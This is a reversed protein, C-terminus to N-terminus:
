AEPLERRRIVDALESRSGVELKRFINSLHTSVTRPSIDLQRAITKNSKRAAVLRAIELERSSLGAAGPAAERTPPRAGLERIQERTKSLEREAGMRAFVAHVHRLERIAEDREGQDRLRAAFHRRLRAADPAVPIAELREAAARLREVGLAIDGSLWVVFADAADAWAIGLPHGLREADRRLRAGMAQASAIDGISLYAETIIPLLRHIAWVTYGTRDAVALGRLGLRIAEDFEGAAVHYAARGAHAPVVTHVDVPGEDDGAGSIEWAEDAYVRGRELDGRGFYILSTWVLLRALIGRQNLARARALEREALALAAEWEGTSSMFEVAVEGLRLRHLPSRLEEAIAGGAAIHRRMGAADGTFGSLMALGWHITCSLGRDNLAIAIDLARQGHERARDPPGTWTHLLLLALNVRARLEGESLDDALRAACLLEEKADSARGLELLCEALALRVRAELGPASARRAIEAGRELHALAALHRGSWYHALGLRREAAAAGTADGARDAADRSREWLAIAPEFDGVRQLARALDGLLRRDVAGEARSAEAQRVAAGLYEAAERNAYKALANRGAIALYQVAKSALADDLARAYHFALRDAHELATTGYHTELATAVRGHLLRARALGVGAYITERLIPHSFDYVVARGDLREEVVRERRLEDVAAVLAAQDLEAVAGLEEHRVSTGIVALLNATSRANDSLEGLRAAVAARVSRPLELTEVEWGMWIGDREYLQGSEVLSKLTEEIFFPNGRTWGFLRAAFEREAGSGSGFVQEILETTGTLTLPRVEHIRAAGLSQLSQETQDLLKNEWQRDENYACVLAVRAGSLNRAIFHLLELSSADAWQLDDLVLLLPARTSLQALFQSFNWLVRIKLEAPDDGPRAGPAATTRFAPFIYGLEEEGGRSLTAVTDSGLERLLPVFADAFPAYPVGTEVPHARGVAITWEQRAAEDVWARLLRTKGVGSPGRLLLVAGTGSGARNLLSRIEDLEERRGTLPLPFLSHPADTSM